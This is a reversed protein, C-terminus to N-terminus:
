VHAWPRGLVGFWLAPSDVGGDLRVRQRAKDQPAEQPDRRDDPTLSECLHTGSPAEAEHTGSMEARLERDVEAAGPRPM